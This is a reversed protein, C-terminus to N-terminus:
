DESKRRSAPPLSRPHLQAKLAELEDETFPESKNLSQVIFGSTLITAGIILFPLESKFNLTYPPDNIHM